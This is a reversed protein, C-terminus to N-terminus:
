GPLCCRGEVAPLNVIGPRHNPQRRSQAACQCSTPGYGPVLAASASRVRALKRGPDYANLSEGSYGRGTNYREHLVCGDYERDIRNTGAVKGDPTRVQWEGIWFDFARHAPADCPGAMARGALLM